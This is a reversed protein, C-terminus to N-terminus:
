CLPICGIRYKYRSRFDLRPESSAIRAWNECSRVVVLTEIARGSASALVVEGM